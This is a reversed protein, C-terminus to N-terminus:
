NNVKGLTLVVIYVIQNIMVACMRPISVVWVVYEFGQM